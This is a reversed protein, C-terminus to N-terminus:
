FGTPLLTRPWILPCTAELWDRLLVTKRWGRIFIESVNKFSKAKARTSAIPRLSKREAKLRNTRLEFRLRGM